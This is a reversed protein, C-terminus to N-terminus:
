RPFEYFIEGETGFIVLFQIIHAVDVKPKSNAVEM